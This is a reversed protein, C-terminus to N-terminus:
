TRRSGPGAGELAERRAGGREVAGLRAEQRAGGEVVEEGPTGALRLVPGDDVGGEERRAAVGDEEGVLGTPAPEEVREHPLALQFREEAPELLDGPLGGDLADEEQVAPRAERAELAGDREGFREALGVRSARRV